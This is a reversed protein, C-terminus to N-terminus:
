GSDAALEQLRQCVITLDASRDAIMRGAVARLDALNRRSADDIARNARPINTQFRYYKGKPLLQGLEYEVTDSNGDLLVGIVPVAWFLKGFRRAQAYTIPDNVSGSGLSLIFVDQGPLAGEHADVWAAMAPNNAFVGGDVLAYDATGPPGPLRQPPFYTPAASTARAIARLPYDYEPQVRAQARRFFWATRTRLEWSPVLLGTVAESLRADGAYQRLVTELASPSYAAGAVFSFVYRLWNRRFIAAGHEEYLSVMDVASYRPRGDPGPVTLGVAVIGGTSTGAVLDFLEAIRRGTRREIEALVLTPIIGRIGGGDISLITRV